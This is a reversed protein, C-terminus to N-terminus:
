SLLSCAARQAEIQRATALSKRGWDPLSDIASDLDRVLIGGDCSDKKKLISVHDLDPFVYLPLGTMKSLIASHRLPVKDDLGGHVIHGKAGIRMPALEAWQRAWAPAVFFIEEPLRAGKMLAAILIAGGRSYGILTEIDEEDMFSIAKSLDEESIRPSDSFRPCGTEQEPGKWEVECDPLRMDRPVMGFGHFAVKDFDEFMKIRKM